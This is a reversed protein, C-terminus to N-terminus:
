GRGVPSLRVGVKGGEHGEGGLVAQANLGSRGQSLGLHLPSALDEKVFRLYEDHDAGGGVMTKWVGATLVHLPGQKREPGGVFIMDVHQGIGGVKVGRRSRSSLFNKPVRPCCSTAM